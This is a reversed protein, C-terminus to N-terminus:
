TRYTQYYHQCTEIELKLSLFHLFSYFLQPLISTNTCRLACLLLTKSLNSCSFYFSPMLYFTTQKHTKSIRSYVGALWSVLRRWAKVCIVETPVFSLSSNCSRSLRIQKRRLLFFHEFNSLCNSLIQELIKLKRQFHKSLKLLRKKFEALKWRQRNDTFRLQYNFICTWTITWM